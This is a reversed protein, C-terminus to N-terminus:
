FPRVLAIALLHRWADQPEKPAKHVYPLPLFPSSFMAVSRVGRSSSVRDLISRGVFHAGGCSSGSGFGSAPKAKRQIRNLVRPAASAVFIEDFNRSPQSGTFADSCGSIMCNPPLVFRKGSLTSIPPSNSQLVGVSNM